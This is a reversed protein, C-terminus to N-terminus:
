EFDEPAGFVEKALAMAENHIKDYEKSRHSMEIVSMGTNMCNVFEAQAEELAQLPLTCPGAGFNYARKSM